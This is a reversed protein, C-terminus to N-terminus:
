RWSDVPISPHRIVDMSSYQVELIPELILLILYLLLQEESGRLVLIRLCHLFLTDYM